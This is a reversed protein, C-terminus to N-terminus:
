ESPAAPARKAMIAALDPPDLPGLIHLVLAKVLDYLGQNHCELGEDKALRELMHRPMRWFAMRAAHQLLPM